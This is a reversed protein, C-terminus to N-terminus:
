KGARYLTMREAGDRTYAAIKEGAFERGELRARFMELLVQEGEEATLEERRLASLDEPLTGRSFWPTSVVYFTKGAREECHTFKSNGSLIQSSRKIWENAIMMRLREQLRILLSRPDPTLGALLDWAEQETLEPQLDTVIHGLEVEDACEEKRLAGPDVLTLSGDKESVLINGAHFDGHRIGALFMKELLERLNKLFIQRKEMDVAAIRFWFEKVSVAQPVADSVLISERIGRKGYASFHVCPIQVDELLQAAEFEQRAKNHLLASILPQKEYKAFYQKGDAGTVLWVKRRANQKVPVIEPAVCGGRFWPLLVEASGSFWRWNGCDAIKFSRGIM